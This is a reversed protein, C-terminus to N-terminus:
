LRSGLPAGGERDAKAVRETLVGTPLDPELNTPAEPSAVLGLRVPQDGFHVLKQPVRAQVVEGLPLFGRATKGRDDDRGKVVRDLGGRRVRKRKAVLHKGEGPMVFAVGPHKEYTGGPRTLGRQEPM